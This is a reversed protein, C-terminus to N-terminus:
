IQSKVNLSQHSSAVSVHDPEQDNTMWTTVIGCVLAVLFSPALEEARSLLPGFRPLLPVLFKFVPVAIVGALMTALAGKANYRRWFLSLIMVPCFTAAIGSWGFIVYWFVTRGPALTAVMVAIALAVSALILTIRRSFGILSVRDIKPYFTQQYIDRSVASSGVMLLSDITSMIAALVAAIFAGVVIPPFLREVLMPLVSEGSVGLTASFDGDMGVLLSRGLLGTLVAGSDTILTFIVAVWRGSRIQLQDRIAIFRVFVQPSGLFGIGIAAYSIITLLSSLTLGDPGWLNLFVPDLGLGDGRVSIALAAFLPLLVLGVLMLLGQFFDSWAVAFFGGAYTYTVVIGFGVIAGAYYNWDLFKEFAQGTADIQASVYITVFLVLVTASVPRILKVATSSDPAFSFRYVLYDPITICSSRDAARKFSPAMLFWAVCVGLVEGVVVWLASLGVAAGLGTLGLYLWASEGTTHASFAAVWYGLRRGGVYYDSLSEVRRSALLGLLLLVGFYAILAGYVMRKTGCIEDYGLRLM